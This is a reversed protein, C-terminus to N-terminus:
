CDGGKQTLKNEIIQQYTSVVAVGLQSFLGAFSLQFPDDEYLVAYVTSESKLWNATLVSTGVDGVIMVDPKFQPLIFEFALQSPVVFDVRAKLNLPDGDKVRPHYKIAVKMGRQTLSAIFDDVKQQYNHMKLINNPHAILICVDVTSLQAMETTSAGMKSSLTAGLDQISQSAFWESPLAYVSKQRYDEIASDPQFLWAQDIWSSSGVQVPEDWWVGYVLKKITRGIANELVTTRRGAYSYLGDDLYIGVCSQQQRQQHMAFQFEIRRDSSVAIAQPSWESLWRKIVRFNQKRERLKKFGTQLGPLLTVSKFPSDHWANLADFYPNHDINKQDILILRSDQSDAHALAHAIAVLINLPTSSMYLVSTKEM